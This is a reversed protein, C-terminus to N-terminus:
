APSRSDGPPDAAPTATGIVLIRGSTDIHIANAFSANGLAPAASGFDPAIGDGDFSDDLAGTANYRAILPQPPLRRYGAVLAGGDPLADVDRLQANDTPRGARCPRRRRFDDPQRDGHFPDADYRERVSDAAPQLGSARVYVQGSTTVSVDLPADYTESVKTVVRGDGSFTDDHGGTSPPPCARDGALCRNYGASRTGGVM